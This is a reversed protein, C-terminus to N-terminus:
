DELDIGCANEIWDAGPLETEADNPAAEYLADLEEYATDWDPATTIAHATNAAFTLSAHVHGRPSATVGGIESEPEDDVFDIRHSLQAVLRALQEFGAQAQAFDELQDVEAMLEDVESMVACWEDRNTIDVTIAISDTIDLASHVGDGAQLCLDHEGPELYIVGASQGDGFHVHDADSGIATGADVCGADAIVHFHGAGERAEGSAEIAIGDATMTLPVAGHVTAGDAPEAFAVTADKDEDGCGALLVTAVVLGTVLFTSSTPVEANTSMRRAHAEVAGWTM